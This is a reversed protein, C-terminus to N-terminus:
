EQKKLDAPIEGTLTGLFDVIKSADEETFDKGLEVKAMIVVAENLDNISGDHFYPYTKEVNRLSPVKFTYKDSENQTVDFRGNDVVESYTYEWYNGYLGFKQFMNGGLVNGIHCTICGSNIFLDLGEKENESLASADGALYDDFKSPTVLKREFAGIAKQINPYNLPSTEEPFADAFMENYDDFKSLREVVVEESPMAMEAPNLIPGGAQDEITGERGDWFQTAHFAANLVTPSNRTGLGGDNGPSTPLNDVGYTELNHCTNCSQTNDKSLNKDFYLKKGLKVLEESTPYQDTEAVKPLTGFLIKAKQMLPDVTEQKQASANEKKGSDPSCSFVFSIVVIFLIVKKM